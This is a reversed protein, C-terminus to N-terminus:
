SHYLEVEVGGHAKIACHKIIYKFVHNFKGKNLVAKRGVGKM